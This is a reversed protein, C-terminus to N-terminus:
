TERVNGEIDEIINKGEKKVVGLKLEKRSDQVSENYGEKKVHENDQLKLRGASCSFWHSDLCTTGLITKVPRQDMKLLSQFQHQKQSQTNNRYMEDYTALRECDHYKM